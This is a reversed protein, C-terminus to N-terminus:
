KLCPKRGNHWETTTEIETEKMKKMAKIEERENKESQKEKMHTNVQRQDFHDCKILSHLVRLHLFCPVFQKREKKRKDEKEKMKDKERDKAQM